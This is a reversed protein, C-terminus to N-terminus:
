LVCYVIRFVLAYSPSLSLSVSTYGGFITMVGACILFATVVLFAPHSLWPTHGGPQLLIMKKGCWFRPPRRIHFPFRGRKAVFLFVTQCCAPPTPLAGSVPSALFEAGSGWSPIQYDVPQLLFLLTNGLLLFLQCIAPPCPGFKLPADSSSLFLSASLPRGKLVHDANQTAHSSSSLFVVVTSFQQNKQPKQFFLFWCNKSKPVKV